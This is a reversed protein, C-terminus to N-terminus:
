EDIVKFGVGEASGRKSFVISAARARILSVGLVKEFCFLILGCPEATVAGVGLHLL